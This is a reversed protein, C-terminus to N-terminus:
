GKLATELAEVARDVDAETTAHSLPLRLLRASADDTVSMSGSVRGCHIGAPASHLPVFHFSAAIGAARLATLVRDRESATPLMVRYIHGNHGCHQPIVPRLIHGAAEMPALAAHYRNWLILRRATIEHAREFQDLLVAAQFESVVGSVGVDVWTYRDVEGRLFASRNTGKERMIETRYAIKHKKITLAGGEGCRINKTHHFSFAGIDGLTGAAHGWYTSLYAQAADEIIMLGHIEAIADIARMDCCVGAYHVVMIARTRDTIAAEILTEDINLTDPRVDVFVPVAGRLVVSNGASSFGFSPMIVEDGLKLDALLCALELAATCSPTLYAHPVHIQARILAECRKAMPGDGIWIDSDLVAQLNALATM